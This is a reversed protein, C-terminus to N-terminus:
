DRIKYMYDKPKSFVNQLSEIFIMVDAGDILGHDTTISLTLQPKIIINDDADAVVQKRTKGFGIIGGEPPTLLPTFGDVNYVGLNSVTFTAGQMNVRMLKGKKLNEYAEALESSVDEVTKSQVNPIVPQMLYGNVMAAMGINISEYYVIEEEHRSANLKMNEELACAVAKLFLDGFTVKIGKEKLEQRYAIMEDMDATSFATGQPYKLISETMKETIIARIGKLPVIKSIIRGQEDKQSM